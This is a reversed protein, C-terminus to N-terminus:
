CIRPLPEGRIPDLRRRTGICSRLVLPVNGDTDSIAKNIRGIKQPNPCSPHLRMIELAEDAQASDIILVFRGECAVHIPDIGFLESAGLVDDAVPILAEEIEMNMGSSLCLEHLNGALGGRTLDRMCRPRIGKVLMTQVVASLDQCDSHIAHEFELGQRQSLVAVGHRGIDGNIIVVDNERLNSPECLKGHILKGIGSTNIFLGDGSGKEVVKTDGTVIDVGVQRAADAMSQVVQQLQSLPLGEEIILSCSLVWPKAACMALDNVTGMIALQGIDGGPFFLPSVVFSDTTFALPTSVANLLAGDQQQALVPNYFAPRIIQELLKASLQGGAGHALQVRADGETVQDAPLPCAAEDVNFPNM